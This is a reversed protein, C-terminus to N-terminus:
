SQCGLAGNGRAPFGGMYRGPVLDAREGHRATVIRSGGSSVLMLHGSSVVAVEGPWLHNVGVPALAVAGAFVFLLLKAFMDSAIVSSPGALNRPGAPWPRSAGFTGCLRVLSLPGLSCSRM